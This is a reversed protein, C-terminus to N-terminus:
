RAIEKDLREIVKAIEPTIADATARVTTCASIAGILIYNRVLPSRVMDEFQIYLMEEESPMIIYMDSDMNSLYELVGEEKFSAYSGAVEEFADVYLYAEFISKLMEKDSIAQIQSSSKLVDFSTTMLPYKGVSQVTYIYKALSDVPMLRPNRIYPKLADAGISDRIFYEKHLEMQAINDQLEDRVMTLLHAAEKKDARNQLLASGGFTIIIGIVVTALHLFFQTLNKNKMDKSNTKCNFVSQTKTMGFRAFRLSPVGKNKNTHTGEVEAQPKREPHCRVFNAKYVL